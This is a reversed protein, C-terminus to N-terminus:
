GMRGCVPWPQWGRSKWLIWARYDQESKSANSPLGTGGVGRWTSATFQYAGYFGNSTNIRYNNGSECRRVATPGPQAAWQAAAPHAPKPAPHHTTPIFLFPAILLGIVSDEETTTRGCGQVKPGKCRRSPGPMGLAPHATSGVETHSYRAGEEVVTCCAGCPSSGPHAELSPGKSVLVKWRQGCTKCRLKVTYNQVEGPAAMQRLVELPECDHSVDVIRVRAFEKRAEPM